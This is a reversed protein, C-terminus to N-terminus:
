RIFSPIWVESMSRTSWHDLRFTQQHSTFAVTARTIDICLCIQVGNFDIDTFHYRVMQCEGRESVLFVVCLDFCFCM